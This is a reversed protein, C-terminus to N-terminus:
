SARRVPTRHIRGCHCSSQGAPGSRVAGVELERTALRVQRFRPDRHRECANTGSVQLKDAPLLQSVEPLFGPTVSQQALQPDGMDFLVQSFTVASTPRGRPAM